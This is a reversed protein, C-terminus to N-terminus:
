GIMERVIATLEALDLGTMTISASRSQNDFSRFHLVADAPKTQLTPNYAAM